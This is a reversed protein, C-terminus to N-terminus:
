MIQGKPIFAFIGPSMNCHWTVLMTSEVGSAWDQLTNFTENEKAETKIKISSKKKKKKKKKDGLLTFM